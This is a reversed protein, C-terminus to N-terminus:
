RSFVAYCCHTHRSYKLLPLRCCDTKHHTYKRFDPCLYCAFNFVSNVFFLKSCFTVAPQVSPYWFCTCHCVLYIGYSYIYYCSQCFPVLLLRSSLSSLHWVLLHLLLISLFAAFTFCLFKMFYTLFRTYVPFIM